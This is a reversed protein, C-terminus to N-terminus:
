AMPASTEDARATNTNPQTSNTTNNNSDEDMNDDQGSATPATTAQLRKYAPVYVPKITKSLQMYDAEPIIPKKFIFFRAVALQHNPDKLRAIIVKVRALFLRHCEEALFATDESEAYKPDRLKTTDMPDFSIPDLKYKILQNELATYYDNHILLEFVHRDPFRIDLIPRNHIGMAHFDDRMKSISSRSRNPIYVFRYGHSSSVASFQRAAALGTDNIELNLPQYKKRSPGKSKPKNSNSTPAPKKALEAFSPPNNTTIPPSTPTSEPATTPAQAQQAVLEQIQKQADELQQKTQNLSSRLTINEQILAQMKSIQADQNSLRIYIDATATPVVIPTATDAAPQLNNDAMTKTISRILRTTTTLKPRQSASTPLPTHTQRALTSFRRKTSVSPLPSINLRSKATTSAPETTTM